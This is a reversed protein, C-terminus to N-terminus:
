LSVTHENQDIVKLAKLAGDNGTCHLRNPLGSTQAKRPGGECIGAPGPARIQECRCCAPLCVAPCATPRAPNRKERFFLAELISSVRMVPVPTSCASLHSDENPSRTCGDSVDLKIGKVHTFLPLYVFAPNSKKM